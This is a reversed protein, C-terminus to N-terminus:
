KLFSNFRNKLVFYYDTDTFPYNMKRCLKEWNKYSFKYYWMSEVKEFVSVREEFTNKLLELDNDTIESSDDIINKILRSIQGVLLDSANILSDTKSDRPSIEIKMKNAIDEFIFNSNGISDPVLKIRDYERELNRIMEYLSPQFLLLINKEKGDISKFNCLEEKINKINFNNWKFINSIQELKKSSFLVEMGSIIDEIDKEDVTGNNIISGFKQCLINDDSIIEALGKKTTYIPPLRKSVVSYAYLREEETTLGLQNAKIDFYTDENPFTLYGNVTHNNKKDFFIEVIKCAIMYQKEFCVFYPIADSKEMLEKSLEIVKKIGKHSVFSKSKLEGQHRNQFSEIVSEAVGIKDDSIIWGGYTFYPQDANLWDNGTNHCEDLYFIM